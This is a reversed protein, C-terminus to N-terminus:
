AQWRGRPFRIRMPYEPPRRLSAGGPIRYKPTRLTRSRGATGPRLTLPQAASVASFGSPSKKPGAFVMGEDPAASLFCPGLSRGVASLAGAPRTSRAVNFSYLPRVVAGSEVQDSALRNPFFRATAPIGRPQLDSPNLPRGIRGARHYFAAPLWGQARRGHRPHGQDRGRRASLGGGRLDRAPAGHDDRPLGPGREHPIGGEARAGRIR